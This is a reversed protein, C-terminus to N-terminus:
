KKALKWLNDFLINQVKNFEKDQIIFGKADDEGYNVFAVKDRYVFIAVDSVDGEELFRFESNKAIKEKVFEKEEKTNSLLTKTKVNAERKRLYYNM